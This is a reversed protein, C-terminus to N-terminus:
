IIGELLCVKLINRYHSQRRTMCETLEVDIVAFKRALKILTRSVHYKINSKYIIDLINLTEANWKINSTIGEKSM